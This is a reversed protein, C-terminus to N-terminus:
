KVEFILEVKFLDGDIVLRFEGNQLETLSKSISLGLGSGETTRSKDGRVFRQMLEDSSINLKEKSINKIEIKAIQEEKKVDIYVRSSELAYKSINSFLNEIVRYMYKNDAKVYIEEKPVTYIVDLNKVKFKDEFEGTAQKILECINIKEINLKVNGSSAKSAEVLDETLRKLRQSKNELVEIYEKAKENDITEKKLLDVYNIISTLPTKIDHSVNTILETKLKESKIGEQIANEFGSSVDNINKVISQFRPTFERYDLTKEYNGKYIEELHKEIKIYCNVNELFKYMIIGTAIFVLIVGFSELIGIVIISSVIFVILFITNKIVEPWSEILETLVRNIKDLRGKIKTLLVKLMNWFKKILKWCWQCLKGTLSEKILSKAKIRKIITVGIVACLIYSIFFGTLLLSNAINYYEASIRDLYTVGIGIIVVAITGGIALIVEIPIEDLDNFDIGEKGKSHGISALLYIFIIVLLVSAVPIAYIMQPEYSKLDNILMKYYDVNQIELLEEEYTSYILFDLINTTYWERNSQETENQKKETESIDTMTVYGDNIEYKYEDPKYDYIGKETILIETSDNRKVVYQNSNNNISYYTNEFKKFHQIAKNSFIESNSEIKGNIINATKKGSNNIFTKISEINDTQVTLEVNTIALDKYQILFYYDKLNYQNNHFFHTNEAEVYCIRINGDYISNYMNNHYILKQVNSSLDSMYMNLFTDTKFYISTDIKENYVEKGFEYFVSLSIILILIPILCYSIIKLIKSERM